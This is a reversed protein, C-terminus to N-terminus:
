DYSFLKPLVHADRLFIRSTEAVRRLYLTLPIYTFYVIVSIVSVASVNFVVWIRYKLQIVNLSLVVAFILLWLFTVANTPLELFNQLVISHEFYSMIWHITSLIIIVCSSRTNDEWTKLSKSLSDCWWM